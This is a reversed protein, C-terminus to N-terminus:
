CPEDRRDRRSELDDGAQFLRKRDVILGRFMEGPFEGAGMM